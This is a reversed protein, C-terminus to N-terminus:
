SRQKKLYLAISDATCYAISQITVMPNVGSSTPLVSGDGVFLGEAEWMEGSSDVASSAPTAGMRCSGLQHASAMQISSNKAGRRKVRALYAETEIMSAGQAKFREGQLQQTGVEIAGAAIFVRLSQELGALMSEEDYRSIKYNIVPLQNKDIRVTGSGKDRTVVTIHSTRGHRLMREKGDAGSNWAHFAGFVAPHLVGTELIAGYETPKRLTVPAYVTMIGGEYSKGQPGTGDPFYGWATSAPHLRLYKGINRNTLGSKLLLPPTMLAGCAVVTAKAKVFIRNPGKGVTAVVGQAKRQKKVKPQSGHFIKEATCNSIIVANQTRVADVLWTETTAQKKGTPCGYSCYGCYHDSPCNRQLTSYHLNLRKCGEQLVTNQLNHKDVNPQVSLREWVAQMAHDYRESNFLQLNHDQVWEDRVHQPTKFCVCWNVATGGGVTAGAILNVGGDDTALAGMKEYLNMIGPGEMTSMDQAAFYRGKELIVVKFGQSALVAAIVGGGSGSGVIVVDCELHIDNENKSPRGNENKAPSRFSPFDDVVSFGKAILFSKLDPATADIHGDQLPRPKTYDSEVRERVVADVGAYGIAKWVVPFNEIWDEASKSYFAWSVISKFAKFMQRFQPLRSRSWGQLIKEQETVTLKSFKRPFPHKRTITNIGGMSALVCTAWGTGLLQLVFYVPKLIPPRMLIPLIAAVVDIIDEDSAKIKFFEAADEPNVDHMIIDKEPPPLSPIYADCIATLAAFQTANLTHTRPPTWKLLAPHGHITVPKKKSMAPSSEGNTPSETQVGASLAAGSAMHFELEELQM